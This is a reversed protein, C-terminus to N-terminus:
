QEKNYEDQMRNQEEYYDDLIRKWECKNKYWEKNVVDFSMNMEISVDLIIKGIDGEGLRHYITEMCKYKKASTIANTNKSQYRFARDPRGGKAIKLLAELLFEKYLGKIPMDNEITKCIYKLAERIGEYTIPEVLETTFGEYFEVTAM